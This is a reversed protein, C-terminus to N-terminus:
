QMKNYKNVKKWRIWLWVYHLQILLYLKLYFKKLVATSSVSKENQINERKEFFRRRLLKKKELKQIIAKNM